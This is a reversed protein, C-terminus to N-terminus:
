FEVPLRVFSTFVYLLKCEFANMVYTVLGVFVRDNPVKGFLMMGICDLESDVVCIWRVWGVFGGLM